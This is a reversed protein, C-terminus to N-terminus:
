FGDLSNQVLAKMCHYVIAAFKVDNKHVADKFLRELISFKRLREADLKTLREEFEKSPSAIQHLWYTKEEQTFSGRKLARKIREDWNDTNTLHSFINKLTRM